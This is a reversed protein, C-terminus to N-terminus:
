PALLIGMYLRGIQADRGVNYGEGGIKRARLFMLVDSKREERVIKLMAMPIAARKVKQDRLSPM